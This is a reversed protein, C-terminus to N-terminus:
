RFSHSKTRCGESNLDVEGARSKIGKGEPHFLHYKHCRVLPSNKGKLSALFRCKETKCILGFHKQEGLIKTLFVKLMM